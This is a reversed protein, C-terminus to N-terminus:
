ARRHCFVIPMYRCAVKGKSSLCSARRCSLRLPRCPTAHRTGMSVLPRHADQGAIPRRERNAYKERLDQLRSVSFSPRMGILKQHGDKADVCRRAAQPPFPLARMGARRRGNLPPQRHLHGYHYNRGPRRRYCEPRRPARPEQCDAGDGSLAGSRTSASRRLRQREAFRWCPVPECSRWQNWDDNAGDIVTASRRM